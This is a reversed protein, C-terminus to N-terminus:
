LLFNADRADRGARAVPAPAEDEFLRPGPRPAPAPLPASAAHHQPEPRAPPLANWKGIASVPGTPTLPGVAPLQAPTEALPPYSPRSPEHRPWHPVTHASTARLPPHATPHPQTAAAYPPVPTVAPVPTSAIIGPTTPAMPVVRGEIVLAIGVGQRLRELQQRLERNEAELAQIRQEREALWRAIRGDDNRPEAYM